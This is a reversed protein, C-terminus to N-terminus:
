ALPVMIETLWQEPPLENCDNLYEEAVTAGAPQLGQQPLWTEFLWAYAQPLGEYHGQFRLVAARTAPLERIGVSADGQTGPPVTCCAEARLQAAPVEAPDDHFLGIYRTGPAILGRADAWQVLRDFGQNIQDYPGTVRLSALQLPGIQRIDVPYM